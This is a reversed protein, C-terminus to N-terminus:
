ADEHPINAARELEYDHLARHFEIGFRLHVNEEETSWGEIMIYYYLRPCRKLLELSTADWAYQINTSLLFPSPAEEEISEIAELTKDVLYEALPNELPPQDKIRQEIETATIDKM